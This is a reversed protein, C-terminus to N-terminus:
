RTRPCPRVSTRTASAPDSGAFRGPWEQFLGMEHIYSGFKGAGYGYILEVDSIAGDFVSKAECFNLNEDFSKILM